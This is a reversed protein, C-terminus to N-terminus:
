LWCTTHGSGWLLLLVETFQSVFVQDGAESKQFCAPLLNVGLFAKM